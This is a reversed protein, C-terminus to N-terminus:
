VSFNIPCMELAQYKTVWDRSFDFIFVIPGNARSSEKTNRLYIVFM